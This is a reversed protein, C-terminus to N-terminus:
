RGIIPCHLLCGSSEDATGWSSWATIGTHHHTHVSRCLSEGIVTHRQLTEGGLFFARWSLGDRSLSHGEKSLQFILLSESIKYTKKGDEGKFLSPLLFSLSNCKQRRSATLSTPEGAAQVHAKLKVECASLMQARVTGLAAAHDREPAAWLSSVEMFSLCCFCESCSHEALWEETLCLRRKQFGAKPLALKKNRFWFLFSLSSAPTVFASTLNIHILFKQFTLILRTLLFETCYHISGVNLKRKWNWVGYVLNKIKLYQCFDAWSSLLGTLWVHWSEEFSAWKSESIVSFCKLSSIRWVSTVLM